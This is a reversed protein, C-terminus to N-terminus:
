SRWNRNRLQENWSPHRQPLKLGGRLHGAKVRLPREVLAEILIERVLESVSTGQAQARQALAARLDEDVRITLTTSM